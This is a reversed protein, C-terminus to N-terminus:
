RPSKRRENSSSSCLSMGPESSPLAGKKEGSPWHSANKETARPVRPASSVFILISPPAGMRTVSVALLASAPNVAAPDQDSLPCIRKEPDEGVM